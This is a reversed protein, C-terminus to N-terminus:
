SSICMGASHATLSIAALTLDMSSAQLSSCGLRQSSSAPASHMILIVDEVQLKAYHDHGSVLMLQVGRTTLNVTFCCAPGM